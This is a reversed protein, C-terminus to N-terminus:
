FSAHLSGDSNVFWLPYSKEGLFLFLFASNKYNEVTFGKADM